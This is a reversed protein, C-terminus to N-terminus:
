MKTPPSGKLRVSPSTMAMKEWNTWGDEREQEGEKELECEESGEKEREGGVRASVTFDGVDVERSVLFGRSGTSESEEHVEIM